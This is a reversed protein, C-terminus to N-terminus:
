ISETGGIVTERTMEKNDRYRVVIIGYGSPLNKQSNDIIDKYESYADEATTFNREYMFKGSLNFTRVTHKM